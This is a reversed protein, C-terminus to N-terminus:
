ATTVTQCDAAKWFATKQGAFSPRKAQLLYGKAPWFSVEQFVAASRQVPRLNKDEFGSRLM